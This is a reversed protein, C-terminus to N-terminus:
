AVFPSGNKAAYIGAPYSRLPRRLARIEFKGFGGAALLKGFPHLVHYPVGPSRPLARPGGFNSPYDLLAVADCHRGAFALVTEVAKPPMLLLVSCAVMLDFRRGGFTKELGDHDGVHGTLHPRERKLEAIAEAAHDVCHIEPAGRTKELGRYLADINRGSSSGFDLIRLRRKDPLGALRAAVDDLFEGRAPNGIHQLTGTAQTAADAAAKDALFKEMAAGDVDAMEAVAPLPPLFPQRLCFLDLMAREAEAHAPTGFAAFGDAAAAYRDAFHDLVAGYADDGAVAAAPVTKDKLRRAYDPFKAAAWDATERELGYHDACKFLAEAALRNGGLAEAILGCVFFLYPSKAQAVNADCLAEFVVPDRFEGYDSLAPAVLRDLPRRHRPPPPIEM